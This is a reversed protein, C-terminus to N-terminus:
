AAKELSSGIFVRNPNHTSPMHITAETAMPRPAGTNNSQPVTSVALTWCCAWDRVKRVDARACESCRFLELPVTGHSTWNSPTMRSSHFVASRAAPAM